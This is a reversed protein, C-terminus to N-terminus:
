KYFENLVDDPLPDFFGDMSIKGKALGPIRKKKDEIISIIKAIPKGSKAIIIEEGMQVQKLIQSFHTKADHVNYKQM